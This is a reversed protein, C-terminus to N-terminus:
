SATLAPMDKSTLLPGTSPWFLRKFISFRCINPRAPSSKNALRSIKVFLYGAPAIICPLTARDGFTALLRQVASLTMSTPSLNRLKMAQVSRNPETVQGQKFNRYKNLKTRLAVPTREALPRGRGGLTQAPM